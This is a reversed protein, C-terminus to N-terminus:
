CTPGGPSCPPESTGGSAPPRQGSVNPMNFEAWWKPPNDDGPSDGDQLYMWHGDGLYEIIEIHKDDADWCGLVMHEERPLQTEVEIWQLPSGSM